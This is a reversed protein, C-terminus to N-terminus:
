LGRKGDVLIVTELLDLSLGKADGVDVDRGILDACLLDVEPEDAGHEDPWQHMCRRASERGAQSPQGMVDEPVAKGEM